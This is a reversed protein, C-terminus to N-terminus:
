QWPSAEFCLSFNIQSVFKCDFKHSYRLPFIPNAKQRFVGPNNIPILPYTNCWQNMKVSCLTEVTVNTASLYAHFWEWGMGWRNLILFSWYQVSIWEHLAFCIYLLLILIQRCIIHKVSSNMCLSVLKNPYRIVVPQVPVAPIFAGALTFFYIFLFSLLMKIQIASVWPRLTPIFWDATNLCYFWLFAIIKPCFQTNENVSTVIVVHHFMFYWCISYMSLMWLM